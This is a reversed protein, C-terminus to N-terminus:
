KLAHVLVHNHSILHPLEDPHTRWLSLPADRQKRRQREEFQRLSDVQLPTLRIFPRVRGILSLAENFPHGHSILYAAAMSPARGVGASCHIYVRNGERLATDIFEIGKEIHSESIPDDDVTPLHCYRDHPHDGLTLGHEADDFESRMNVIHTIGAQILANKGSRRHQPGVYLSECVRSYDLLPIGTIKPIGRAYAWLATTRVGQTRLRESVTRAGKVLM